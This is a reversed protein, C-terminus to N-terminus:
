KTAEVRQYLQIICDDVRALEDDNDRGDIYRAM